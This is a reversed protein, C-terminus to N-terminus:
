PKAFQPKELDHNQRISANDFWPKASYLNLWIPTEAIGSSFSSDM